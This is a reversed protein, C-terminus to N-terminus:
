LPCCIQKLGAHRRRRTSNQSDAELAVGRGVEGSANALAAVSGMCPTEIRQREVGEGLAEDVAEPLRKVVFPTRTGVVFDHQRVVRQIAAKQLLLNARGRLIDAGIGVDLRQRDLGKLALVEQARGKGELAPLLGGWRLPRGVAEPLGGQVPFFRSQG